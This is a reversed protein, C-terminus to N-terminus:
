PNKVSFNWSYPMFIKNFFCSFGKVNLAEPGM